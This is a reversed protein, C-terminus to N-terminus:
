RLRMDAIVKVKGMFNLLKSIMEHGIKNLKPSWYRPWLKDNKSLKPPLKWVTYSVSRMASKCNKIWFGLSIWNSNSFVMLILGPLYDSLSSLNAGITLKSDSTVTLKESEITILKATPSKTEIRVLKWQRQRCTSQQEFFKHKQWQWPKDRSGWIVNFFTSSASGSFRFVLTVKGHHWVEYKKCCVALLEFWTLCALQSWLLRALEGGFCLGIGARKFEEPVEDCDRPKVKYSPVVRLWFESDCSSNRHRSTKSKELQKVNMESSSKQLKVVNHKIRPCKDPLPPPPPSTGVVSSESSSFGTSSVASNPSNKGHHRLNAKVFSRDLIVLDFPTASSLDM